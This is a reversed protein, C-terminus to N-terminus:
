GLSRRLETPGDGGRNLQARCGPCTVPNPDSPDTCFLTGCPCLGAVGNECYPCSPCGDLAESPIPPLADSEGEELEDLPHAAIAEYRDDGPSRAPGRRAFRMLYPRGSRSCRAHLFVQRPSPDFAEGEAARSLLDQPLPALGLSDPRLSASRVSASMWVFFRSLVDPSLEDLHLVIDTVSRLVANDVDPGCGIAYVNAPQPSQRRLEEAASEWDDTPQGDTLLFVLPKYDGKTTASAKVVEREVCERLLRLAAGLATGTRVKLQPTTFGFLDTLPVVQRAARDFTIVSLHAAELTHPDRRLENVLAEVGRGVAEIAPGAMSESCDLLLYVPLRRQRSM